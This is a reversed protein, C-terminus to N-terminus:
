WTTHFQQDEIRGPCLDCITEATIPMVESLQGLWHEAAFRSERGPPVNRRLLDARTWWYNGGFMGGTGFGPVSSPGGQYWHAGAISMGCGTLAEVPQRWEVVCHHEMDRRWGDNIPAYNAAGKTHAYSVLGDHDQVWDYLPDLTEQEWGSASEACRRYGPLYHEITCHAAAINEPTGVYGVHVSDLEAALGYRVLAECHDTVPQQWAGDAFVHYWHSMSPRTM